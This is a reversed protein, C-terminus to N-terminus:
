DKLDGWVNRNAPCYMDLFEQHTPMAAVREAINERYKKMYALLQEEPIARAAPHYDRPMMGQGLMVHTWSDIRFLERVDQFAHASSKFLEIRSKLSDPIEMNKCYRWFATDERETTNYHLVIFDRIGEIEERSEFNFRNVVSPDIGNHPFLHMLRVITSMIMHISTSELPEVFGGALGIAVCNKNWAKRRRGTRIKVTWPDRTPKGDVAALLKSAAEDESMYRSCFVWGNGTRHQLPINWRWGAEHAIASTYPKVPAINETQLAIATDCPLWHAWDEFGTHLTQEILLGRFGTCDLFLDGEVVQGSALTLSEIYGTTNNQNVTKIKGEIRKLGNQEAIKRLFKAYLSADIHYAFNIDSEPSTAFRSQDAGVWELCYDGLYATQGLKLSHLWYHHFDCAWTPQGNIGFPHIYREGVKRWNEFWIGLKFTAATERMFEQENLGLLKNLARMPPVTSEGVGVTAIEESEVLTIDLVKGLQQALIAGAMWGSTGGGAIVIKKIKQDNM